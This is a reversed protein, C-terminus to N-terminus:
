FRRDIFTKLTLVYSISVDWDQIGISVFAIINIFVYYKALSGLSFTRLVM